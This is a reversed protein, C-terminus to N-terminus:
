EPFHLQLKSLIEEATQRLVAGLTAGCFIDYPPAPGWYTAGPPPLDSFPACPESQITQHNSGTSEWIEGNKGVHSLAFFESLLVVM